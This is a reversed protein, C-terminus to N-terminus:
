AYSITKLCGKDIHVLESKLLERNRGFLDV